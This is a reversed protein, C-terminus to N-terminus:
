NRRKRFLDTLVPGADRALLPPLCLLLLILDRGFLDLGVGHGGDTHFCGCSIDLGRALATGIAVLFVVTLFAALLAAGRRLVGLILGLGLVLETMPLLLALPHLLSLPVLRYHYIAQAFGDPQLLKDWSAYIFVGGVLLRCVLALAPTGAAKSATWRSM